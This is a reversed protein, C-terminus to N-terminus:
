PVDGYYVRLGGPAGYDKAGFGCGTKMHALNHIPGYASVFHKLLAAGTPTCFEGQIDGSYFPISQLLYETAPAPIPLISGKCCILGYGAHVPTALIQEPNLEDILMCCGLVDIVADMTGLSSNHIDKMKIGHVHSEAKFILHLVALTNKIINRSLPRSILFHEIETFSGFKKKVGEASPYEGTCIDDDQEEVGNWLVRIHTGTIGCRVLKEATVFVGPFGLANIKNMFKMPHLSTEMLASMLMDGAVGMSCDFYITRM